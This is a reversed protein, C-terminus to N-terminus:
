PTQVRWIVVLVVAELVSKQAAQPLVVEPVVVLLLYISLLYGQLQQPCFVWLL